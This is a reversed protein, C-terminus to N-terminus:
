NGMWMERISFKLNGLLVFMNHSPLFNFNIHVKAFHFNESFCPMLSNPYEFHNKM